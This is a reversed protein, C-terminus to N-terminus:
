FFFLYTSIQSMKYLYICIVKPTKQATKNTHATSSLMPTTNKPIAQAICKPVYGDQLSHTHSFTELLTSPMYKGSPGWPTGM